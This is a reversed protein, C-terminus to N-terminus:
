LGLESHLQLWMVIDRRRLLGALSGNRMVPLQGVDRRQLKNLAEAADEGAMVSVLQDASTMIQRVPMGRAKAVLSHALEHVLVSIFFLIAAILAIGTALWGGWDPHASAFVVSLNWSVLVFILLWSWDVRINIDAIRAIRFGSKM